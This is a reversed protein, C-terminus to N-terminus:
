VLTASLRNTARAELHAPSNPDSKPRERIYEIRLNTTDLARRLKSESILRVNPVWLYALKRKIDDRRFQKGAILYRARALAYILPQVLWKLHLRRIAALTTYLLRNSMTESTVSLYLTGNKTLAAALERICEAFPKTLLELTTDSWILDFCERPLQYTDLDEVRFSVSAFGQCKKRAAEINAKGIDLGLVSRSGAEAFLRSADGSGCGYDLVTQARIEEVSFNRHVVLRIYEPDNDYVLGEFFREATTM